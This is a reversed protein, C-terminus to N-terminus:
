PSSCPSTARPVPRSRGNAGCLHGGKLLALLKDPPHFKGPRVHLPSIANIADLKEAPDVRTYIETTQTSTHGLWLSVKRIDKTAQLAIMACTHRAVHPSVQKKLLSPKKKGAIRVARRLIYAFGWRSMQMGRANIFLEPVNAHGRVVLWARLAAATEKWLPLTRERRGKGRVLISPVSPLSLDELRLGVLESARLGAAFAVHLMARDRIGDRTHPNPADLVALMEDRHLYSVLRSDTKKFPVALIRRVQDLAAPLRYELFRFFTKIAALRVNRTAPTSGRETEIHELFATVMSSDLQELSIGSPSCRLKKSAFLFLLQLSDAYTDCTHRSAGRQVPLFDRLFVAVHPAIPSM